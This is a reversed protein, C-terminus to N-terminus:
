PKTSLFVSFDQIDKFAVDVVTPFSCGRRWFFFFRIKTSLGFNVASIHESFPGCFMVLSLSGIM